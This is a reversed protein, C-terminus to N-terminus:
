HSWSSLPCFSSERSAMPAGAYVSPLAWHLAHPQLGPPWHPPSAVTCPLLIAPAFLSVSSAPPATFPVLYSALRDGIDTPTFHRSGLTSVCHLHSCSTCLWKTQNNLFINADSGKWNCRLSKVFLSLLLLLVLARKMKSTGPSSCLSAVEGLNCKSPGLNPDWGM